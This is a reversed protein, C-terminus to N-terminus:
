DTVEMRQRYRQWNERLDRQATDLAASYDGRLAAPDELDQIRRTPELWNKHVHLHGHDTDYRAVVVWRGRIVARYNLAFRLVRRRDLVFEADLVDDSTLHQIIRTKRAM